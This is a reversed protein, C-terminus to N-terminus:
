RPSSQTWTRSRCPPPPRPLARTGETLNLNTSQRETQQVGQGAAAGRRTLKHKPRKCACGCILAPRPPPSLRAGSGRRRDEGGGRACGGVQAGEVAELEADVDPVPQSMSQVFPPPAASPAHPRPLERREFTAGARTRRGVQKVTQSTVGTRARTLKPM